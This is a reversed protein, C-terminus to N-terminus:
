ASMVQQYINQFLSQMGTTGTAANASASTSTSLASLLDNPDTTQQESSSYRGGGGGHHHHHGGAAHAPTAAQQAPQLSATNGTQSATQFNNALNQLFQQAPGTAQQAAASLESSIQATLQKFQTPDTQALSELKSFFQGAQSLEATGNPDAPSAAITAAATKNGGTLSELLQLAANGATGAIPLISM